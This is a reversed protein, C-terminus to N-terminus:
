AFGLTAVFATAFLSPMRAKGIAPRGQVVAAAVGYLLRGSLDPADGALIAEIRL